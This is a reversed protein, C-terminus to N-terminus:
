YPWGIGYIKFVMNKDVTYGKKEPPPTFKDYPNAMCAATCKITCEKICQNEKLERIISAKEANGSTEPEENTRYVEKLIEIIMNRDVM